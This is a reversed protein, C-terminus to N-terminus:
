VVILQYEKIKSFFFFLFKSKSKICLWFKFGVFCTNQHCNSKSQMKCSFNDYTCDIWLKKRIKLLFTIKKFKIKICLFIGYIRYEDFLLSYINKIWIFFLFLFGKFAQRSPKAWLLLFFFNLCKGYHPVVRPIKDCWVRHKRVVDGVDLLHFPDEINEIAIIKKIIDLDSLKDDFIRIEDFDHPLLSLAM